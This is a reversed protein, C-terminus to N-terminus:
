VQFCKQIRTVLSHFGMKTLFEVANKPKVCERPVKIEIGDYLTALQKSLIAIEPNCRIGDYRKHAPLRSTNNLINELSNFENLLEVSSKPGIGPVGPINDAADGVLALYDLFQEPKIGFKAIVSKETYPTSTSANYVNVNNQKILQILDKDFSMINVIAEEYRLTKVISAVIDDAEYGNCGIRHICFADLAQNIIPLQEVLKKDMSPRNAKYEKYINNRFTSKGSDCAAIFIADPFKKILNIMDSCVGYVAGLEINKVAFFARYIYGSIDILNFIM